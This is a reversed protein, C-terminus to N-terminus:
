IRCLLVAHSSKAAQWQFGNSDDILSVSYDLMHDKIFHCNDKRGIGGFRATWQTNNLQNYTVRDKPNWALVYKHLWKFRVKM